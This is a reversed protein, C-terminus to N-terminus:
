TKEEVSNLKFPYIIVAVVTNAVLNLTTLTSLGFELNAEM